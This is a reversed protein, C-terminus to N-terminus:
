TRINCHHELGALFSDPEHGSLANFMTLDNVFAMKSIFIYSGGQSPMNM